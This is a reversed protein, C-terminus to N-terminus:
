STEETVGPQLLQVRRPNAFAVLALTGSISPWFVTSPKTPHAADIMSARIVQDKTSGIVPISGAYEAQSSDTAMFLGWQQCSASSLRSTGKAVYQDPLRCTDHRLLEGLIRSSERHGIAVWQRLERVGPSPWAVVTVDV